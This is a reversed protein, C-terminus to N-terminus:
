SCPFTNKEDSWKVNPGWCTMVLCVECIQMCLAFTMYKLYQVLVSSFWYTSSVTFPLKRNFDTSYLLWSCITFLLESPVKSNLYFLHSDAFAVRRSLVSIPWMKNRNHKEVPFVCVFTLTHTHTHTHTHLIDGDVGHLYIPHVSTCSWENKVKVSIPPLHNVECGPHKVGPCFAVPVWQIHIMWLLCILSNM